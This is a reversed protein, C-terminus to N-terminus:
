LCFTLKCLMNADASSPPGTKALGPTKKERKVTRGQSVDSKGTIHNDNAQLDKVPILELQM